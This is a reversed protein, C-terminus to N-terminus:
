QLRLSYIVAYPGEVKCVLHKSLMRYKFDWICDIDVTSAIHFSTTFMAALKVTVDGWCSTLLDSGEEAFADAFPLPYSETAFESLSSSFSTELPREGPRLAEFRRPSTYHTAFALMSFSLEIELLRWNFASSSSCCSFHFQKSQPGALGFFVLFVFRSIKAHHLHSM